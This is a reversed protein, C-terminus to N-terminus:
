QTTLLQTTTKDRAHPSIPCAKIIVATALFTIEPFLHEGRFLFDQFNQHANVPHLSSLNILIPQLSKQAYQQM